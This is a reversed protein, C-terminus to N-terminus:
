LNHLKPMRHYKKKLQINELSAHRVLDRKKSWEDKTGDYAPNDVGNYMESTCLLPSHGQNRKRRSKHCFNGM